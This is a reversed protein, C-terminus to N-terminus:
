PLWAARWFKKPKSFNTSVNWLSGTL